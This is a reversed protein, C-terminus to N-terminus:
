FDDDFLHRDPDNDKTQKSKFLVPLWSIFYIALFAVNAYFLVSAFFPLKVNFSNIIHGIQTMVCVGPEPNHISREITCKAMHTTNTAVTSNLTNYLQPGFTAYQPSLTAAQLNLVLVVFMVMWCGMLLGHPMTRHPHFSYLKWIFMRVGIMVLGHVTALFIYLVLVGFLVFDLPFFPALANLCIDLPNPLTTTEIAWGCSSGCKSHMFKDITSLLLSIVILLSFALLILGLVLRFPACLDWLATVCDTQNEGSRDLGREQKQRLQREEKKLQNYKNRDARNWRAV